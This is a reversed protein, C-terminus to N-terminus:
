WLSARHLHPASQPELYAMSLAALMKTVCPLRRKNKSFKHTQGQERKAWLKWHPKSM